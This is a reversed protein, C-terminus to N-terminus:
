GGYLTILAVVEAATAPLAGQFILNDTPDALMIWPLPKSAAARLFPVLLAPPKGTRREIIAQDYVGILNHKQQALDRWSKSTL